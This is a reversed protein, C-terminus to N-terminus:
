TGIMMTGSKPFYNQQNTRISLTGLEDNNNKVLCRSIGIEINQIIQTPTQKWEETPRWQMRETRLDPIKMNALTYGYESNIDIMTCNEHTGLQFAETRGGRLSAHIQEARYTQRIIGLKKNYFLHQTEEDPLKQLQNIMYQIAIQNITILRRIVIEEKRLINKLNKIAELVILTDQKM